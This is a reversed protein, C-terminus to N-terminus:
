HFDWADLTTTPGAQGTVTERSQLYAEWAINSMAPGARKDATDVKRSTPRDLRDTIASVASQAMMSDPINRLTSRRGNSASSQQQRVDFALRLRLQLARGLNGLRDVKSPLIIELPHSISILTTSVLLTAVLLFVLSIAISLKKPREQVPRHIPSLHDDESEFAEFLPRQRSCRTKRTLRTQSGATLPLPTSPTIIVKPLALAPSHPM